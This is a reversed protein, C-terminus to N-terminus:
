RDTPQQHPHHQTKRLPEDVRRRTRRWHQPTRLFLDDIVRLEAAKLQARCKRIEGRERAQNIDEILVHAELAANQATTGRLLDDRLVGAPMQNVHRRLVAGTEDLIEIEREFIHVTAESDLPLPAAAHSGDVQVLSADDVTRAEQKFFRM